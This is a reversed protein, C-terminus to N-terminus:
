FRTWGAATLFVPGLVVGWVPASCKLLSPIHKWAFAGESHSLCVCATISMMGAANASTGPHVANRLTHCIYSLM